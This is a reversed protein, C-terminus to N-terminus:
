EAGASRLECRGGVCERRLRRRSVTELLGIVWCTPCGRLAVLGLPLLFLTVPGAVPLLVFAGVLAGFGVGGRGLHRAM